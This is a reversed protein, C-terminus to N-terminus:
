LLWSGKTLIGLRFSLSWLGSVIVFTLAWINFLTWLEFALDWAGSALCSWFDFILLWLSLDFYFFRILPVDFWYSGSKNPTCLPKGEQWQSSGLNRTESPVLEAIETPWLSQWAKSAIVHPLARRRPLLSNGRGELSLLLTLTFCSLIEKGKYFLHALKNVM